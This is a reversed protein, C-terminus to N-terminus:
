FRLASIAQDDSHKLARALGYYERFVALAPGDVHSDILNPDKSHRQFKAAAWQQVKMEPSMVHNM